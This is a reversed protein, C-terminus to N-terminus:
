PLGLFNFHWLNNIPVGGAFCLNKIMRNQLQCRLTKPQQAHKSVFDSCRWECSFSSRYLRSESWVRSYHVSKMQKSPITISFIRTYIQSIKNIKQFVQGIKKHRLISLFFRKHQVFVKHRKQTSSIQSNICNQSRGKKKRKQHLLNASKCVWIKFVWTADDTLVWTADDLYLSLSLSLTHSLPNSLTTSSDDRKRECEATKQVQLIACYFRTVIRHM